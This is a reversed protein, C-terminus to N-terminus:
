VCVSLRSRVALLRYCFSRLEKRRETVGEKERENRGDRERECVVQQSGRAVQLLFYLENGRESM